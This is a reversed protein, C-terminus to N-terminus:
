SYNKLFTICPSLKSMYGVGYGETDKNCTFHTKMKIIVCNEVAQGVSGAM